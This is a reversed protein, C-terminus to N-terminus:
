FNMRLGFTIAHFFLTNATDVGNSGDGLFNAPALAIGDIWTAEYGVYGSVTDDHFLDVYVRGGLEALFSGTSKTLSTEPESDFLLGDSFSAVSNTIETPNYFGGTRIFGRTHIQSSVQFRLDLGAQLGILGNTAEQTSVTDLPILPTGIVGTPTVSALDTTVTENLSM